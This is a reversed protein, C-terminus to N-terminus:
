VQCCVKGCGSEIRGHLVTTYASSEPSCGLLARDKPPLSIWMVPKVQAIESYWSGTHLVTYILFCTLRPGHTLIWRAPTEHTISESSAKTKAVSRGPAAHTWGTNVSTDREGPLSRVQTMSEGLCVRPSDVVVELSERGRRRCLSDKRPFTISM